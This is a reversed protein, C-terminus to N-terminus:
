TWLKIASNSWLVQMCAASIWCSHSVDVSPQSGCSKSNRGKHDSSPELISPQLSSLPLFHEVSFIWALPM